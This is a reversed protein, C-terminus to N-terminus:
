GDEMHLILGLAILISSISPIWTAAILNLQGSEALLQAFNRVYYLGFGLMISAIIALSKKNGIFNKMTFACGILMMAVLFLPHSLESHFRVEYRLVSFGAAKLQTIHNQLDWISVSSPDSVRERIEEKTLNSPIILKESTQASKESSLGKGLPWQKVNSLHWNKDRIIAKKAELRRTASGNQAFSIITVDYLISGDFNARNARIVSQELNNGQRLWLGESGISFVAREGKIYTEKINLYTKSTAAVLPNLVTLILLGFILSVIIPSFIAGYVSRGAGRVIVLESTKSMSVFFAISSILMTLDIVEYISKPLKLFTLYLIGGSHAFPDKQGVTLVHGQRLQDPYQDKLRRLDEPSCFLVQCPKFDGISPYHRVEIPRGHMSKGPILQLSRGFPNSGLIAFVFPDAAAHREAGEAAAGVDHILEVWTLIAGQCVGARELVVYQGHRRPRNRQVLDIRRGDGLHQSLTAIGQAVAEIGNRYPCVYRYRHGADARQQINMRRRARRSGTSVRRRVIHAEGLQYEEAHHVSTDVNRRAAKDRERQRDAVVVERIRFSRKGVHELLM